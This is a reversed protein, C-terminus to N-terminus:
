EIVRDARLRLSQPIAIGLAKAAKANIVLEIRTPAEIALDGPKAGKLIKDVYAAVRRGQETINNSYSMLCGEEVLESAGCSGPLGSALALRGIEQRLGYARPSREVMYAHVREQKLRSFASRFDAPGTELHVLTLGLREAGVRMKLVHPRDWEERLGLYAIRTARPALERLLELRKAELQEDVDISVGTVMGGPRARSQVVGASLLNSAVFLAVIPTNPAVKQAREVFNGTPLFIVDTKLRVLEAVVAELREPKGELTRMELLLNRGQVYGFDRLGHVFARTFPNAPDPGSIEALPSTTAVFGVRHVKSSPQALALPALALALMGCAADRRKM